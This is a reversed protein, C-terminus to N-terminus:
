FVSGTSTGGLNGAPLVPQLLDRCGLRPKFATLAPDLVHQPEPLEAHSPQVAHLRLELEHAQRQVQSSHTGQLFASRM